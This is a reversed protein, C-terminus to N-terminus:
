PLYANLLNGKSTHTSVCNLAFFMLISTFFLNSELDSEPISKSYLGLDAIYSREVRAGRDLFPM